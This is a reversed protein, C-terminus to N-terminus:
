GTFQPHPVWKEAAFGGFVCGETDRVVILTPGGCGVLGKCFTSFSEGHHRSSFLPFLEGKTGSPFFQNLLIVADAGLLSSDFSERYRHHQTKVPCLLRENSGVLPNGPDPPDIGFYNQVDAPILRERSIMEQLFCLGLGVEIIQRALHTARLWAEFDSLSVIM